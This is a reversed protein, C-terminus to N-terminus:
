CEGLFGVGEWCGTSSVADDLNTKIKEENKTPPPDKDNGKDKDKNKDKAKNM